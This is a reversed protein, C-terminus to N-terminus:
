WKVNHSVNIINDYFVVNKKTINISRYAASSKGALPLHKKKSFVLCMMQQKAYLCKPERPEYISYWQHLCHLLMESTILTLTVGM